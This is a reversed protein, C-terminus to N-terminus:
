KTDGKKANNRMIKRSKYVKSITTSNQKITTM